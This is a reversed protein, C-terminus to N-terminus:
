EIIESGPLLWKEGWTLVVAKEEPIDKMKKYAFDYSWRMPAPFKDSHSLEMVHSVFTIGPNIHNVAKILPM